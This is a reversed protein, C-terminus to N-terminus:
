DNIKSWPYKAQTKGNTLTTNCILDYITTKNSTFAQLQVWFVFLIGLILIIPSSFVVQTITLKTQLHIVLVYSLYVFPALSLFYHLLGRKLSIPMENKKSIKISLLRKGVTAMWASSNLYAHYFAGILIVILYFLAIQWIFSSNAIFEIHSPVAKIESTGFTAEFSSLFKLFESNIWITTMLQMVIIRLFLVIWIDISAATLRRYSSAYKENEKKKLINM